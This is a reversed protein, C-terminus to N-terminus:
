FDTPLEEIPMPLRYRWNPDGVARETGPRNIRDTTLLWDQIPILSLQSPSNIVAKRLRKATTILDGVEVGVAACLLQLDEQSLSRLYSILPETDPTTTYSCSRTPYRAVDAYTVNVSKKKGDFLAYRLIRIGPISLIALNERLLKAREGTDEAFIDLHITQTFSILDILAGAGPGNHLRDRTEDKPDIAGYVFFGNAHDIRVWDFLTSLYKLRQKFVGLIDGYLDPEDWRYLPHGWLQRGFHARPGNPIGSVHPLQGSKDIDFLHQNKWVISSQLPLYFPLDGVLAIGLKHAKERLVKFQGHLKWQLAMHRHISGSLKQRWQDVIRNNNNRVGKPWSTWDDTGTDDRFACFFAYDDIWYSNSKRFTELEIPSPEHTNIVSSLLTPNLGMGYGKYPSPVHVDISGPELHTEHLPLLQWASQNTRKLWKLFALGTGISGPHGPEERTWLASLPVVTGVLKQIKSM